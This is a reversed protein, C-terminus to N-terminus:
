PDGAATFVVAGYSQYHRDIVTSKPAGTYNRVRLVTFRLVPIVDGVARSVSSGAM